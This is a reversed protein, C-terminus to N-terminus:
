DSDPADPDYPQMGIHVTDGGAAIAERMVPVLHDALAQRDAQPLRLSITILIEPEM